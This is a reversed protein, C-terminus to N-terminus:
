VAQRRRLWGVLGMGLSGLLLAGPAPVITLMDQKYKLTDTSGAFGSAYLNLVRVNGISTWGAANAANYWTTANGAALTTVEQEIYWIANQLADNDSNSNTWGALGAGGNRFATYLWATRFDLPDGSNTNIGGAIAQTNLVVDYPGSPPTSIYEDREICFTYFQTGDPNGQWGGNGVTLKFSGGPGTGPGDAVLVSPAGVAIASTLVILLLAVKKMNSGKSNSNTNNTKEIGQRKNSRTLSNISNHDGKQENDQVKKGL